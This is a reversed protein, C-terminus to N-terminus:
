ASAGADPALEEFTIGARVLREILVDGFAAASTIVGYQQPLRARDQVLALASEALMKSTEGYGPDGGSVRCRAWRDGARGVFTVSFSSRSREEASPGTGAPRLKRLWDRVRPTKALSLVAGVAAATGVLSAFNRVLLYHAYSFKRGYRDNLAASQCVIEPDITPLPLVWRGFERRFGVRGRRQRVRRGPLSASFTPSLPSYERMILLASQWTGGSISLKSSVFGEIRVDLPALTGDPVRRELARITYLVGLDHPISDFGCAHVIKAGNAIAQAHYRERMAAVFGPEGTLDVYDTGAKTCAAVLPEGYLAYPGVTSIVVRTRAALQVLSAPDSADAILLEPRTAGHCSLGDRVAVLKDRNRGALAWRIDNGTADALYQATLAGTFGTAGFLVIDFTRSSHM